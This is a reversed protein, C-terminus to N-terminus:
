SAQKILDSSTEAFLYRLIIKNNLKTETSKKRYTNKTYIEINLHIHFIAKM